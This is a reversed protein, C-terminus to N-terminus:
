KKPHPQKPQKEPKSKKNQSKYEEITKLLAKITNIQPHNKFNKAIYNLKKELDLMKGLKEYTIAINYHTEFNKIPKLSLAKEYYKLADQYNHSCYLVLGTHSNIEYSKPDLELAMLSHKLALDWNGIKGYCMSVQLHAISSTNCLKLYSNLLKIVKSINEVDKEGFSQSEIYKAVTLTFDLYTKNSKVIDITQEIAEDIKKCEILALVYSMKASYDEPAKETSIKLYKEALEGDHKNLYCLGLNYITDYDREEYKLAKLYFNIANDFQGDAQYALALNYLCSFNERKEKNAKEFYYIARKYRGKSYTSMGELFLNEYGSVFVNESLVDSIRTKHVNFKEKFDTWHEQLEILFEKLKSESM